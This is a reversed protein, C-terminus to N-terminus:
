VGARASLAANIMELFRRPTDADGLEDEDLLVDHDREIRSTTQIISISDYGLDMWDKDLNAPDTMDVGEAEGACESLLRALDGLEMQVVREMHEGQEM